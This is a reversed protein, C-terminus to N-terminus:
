KEEGGQGERPFWYDDSQNNLHQFRHKDKKWNALVNNEVNRVPSIIGISASQSTLFMVNQTLGSGRLGHEFFTSGIVGLSTISQWRSFWLLTLFRYKPKIVFWKLRWQHSKFRYIYPETLSLSCLQWIRGIEAKDKPFSFLLEFSVIDTRWFFESMNALNLNEWKEKTAYNLVNQLCSYVDAIYPCCNNDLLSHLSFAVPFGFRM